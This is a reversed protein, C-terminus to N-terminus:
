FCFRKYLPSSLVNGSFNYRLTYFAWLKSTTRDQIYHLFRHNLHFNANNCKDRYTQPINETFMCTAHIDTNKKSTNNGTHKRGPSGPKERRFLSPLSHSLVQTTTSIFAFCPCHHLSIHHSLPYSIFSLHSTIHFSIVATTLCSNSILLFVLSIKVLFQKTNIAYM